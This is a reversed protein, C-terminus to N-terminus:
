SGKMNWLGNVISTHTLGDSTEASLGIRLLSDFSSVIEM